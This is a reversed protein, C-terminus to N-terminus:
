YARALRAAEPTVGNVVVSGSTARELDAIVRLLTTKGCGSPGILSVFDGKAVSLDVESLARVPGDAAEFVLDLDRIEVAAPAVAADARRAESQPAPLDDM